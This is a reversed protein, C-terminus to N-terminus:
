SNTFAGSAPAVLYKKAMKLVNTFQLKCVEAFFVEIDWFRIKLSSNPDEPPAVYRSLSFACSNVCRIEPETSV